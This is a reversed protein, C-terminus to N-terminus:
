GASMRLTQSIFSQIQTIRKWLGKTYKASVKFNTMQLEKLNIAHVQGNSIGVQIVIYRHTAWQDKM